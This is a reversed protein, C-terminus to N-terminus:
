MIPAKRPNKAIVQSPPGSAGVTGTARISNTISSSGLSHNIATLALLVIGFLVRVKPGELGPVFFGSGREIAGSPRVYVGKAKKNNANNNDDDTALLKFCSVRPCSSPASKVDCSLTPQDCLSRSKSRSLFAATPTPLLGTAWVITWSALAAKCPTGLVM